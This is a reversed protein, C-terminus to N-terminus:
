KVSITGDPAVEIRGAATLTEFLKGTALESLLVPINLEKPLAMIIAAANKVNKGPLVETIIRELADERSLTPTPGDGPVDEADADLTPGAAADDRARVTILQIEGDFEYDPLLISVPVLVNTAPMPGGFAKSPYFDFMAKRGILIEPPQTQAFVRKWESVIFWEKRFRSSINVMMGGGDRQSVYKKLDIGGYRYADIQEGDPLVLRADLRQVKVHWQPLDEEIAPRFKTAARYKDSALQYNSEVVIGPFTQKPDEWTAPDITIGFQKAIDIDSTAETM